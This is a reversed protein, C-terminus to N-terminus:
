RKQQKEFKSLSIRPFLYGLELNVPTGPVLNNWGGEVMMKLTKREHGIQKFFKDMATPMIPYLFHTIMYLGELM